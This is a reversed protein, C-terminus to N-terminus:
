RGRPVANIWQQGVACLIFPVSLLFSTHTHAFSHHSSQTCPATPHSSLPLVPCSVHWARLIHTHADVQFKLMIERGAHIGATDLSLLVFVQYFSIMMSSTGTVGSFFTYFCALWVILAAVLIWVILLPSCVKKAVLADDWVDSAGQVLCHWVENM